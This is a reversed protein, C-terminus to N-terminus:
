AREAKHGGLCRGQIKVVGARGWRQVVWYKYALAEAPATDPHGAAWAAQAEGLAERALAEQAERALALQLQHAYEGQSLHVQAATTTPLALCRLNRLPVECGLRCAQSPQAQRGPGLLTCCRLSQPRPRVQFAEGQFTDALRSHSELSSASSGSGTKQAGFIVM